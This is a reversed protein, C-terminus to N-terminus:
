LLTVMDNHKSFIIVNCYPYPDHMEIIDVRVKRNNYPSFLVM